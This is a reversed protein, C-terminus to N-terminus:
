TSPRSVNRATELFITALNQLPINPSKQYTAVKSRNAVSFIVSHTEVSDLQLLTAISNEVVKSSHHTLLSSITEIGNASVIIRHCEPEIFFIQFKLLKFQNGLDYSYIIIQM